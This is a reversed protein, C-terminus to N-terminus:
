ETKAEEAPAEEAVPEAFIDTKGAKVIKTNIQATKEYVTNGAVNKRQRQGRRQPKAGVGSVVLIKKRAVGPNDKRMPFGSADSGGTIELEYGTLDLLEGKFKEGIKKGIMAKSQDATLVIQKTKGSKVDSVNLKMDAM